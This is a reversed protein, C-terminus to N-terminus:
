ESVEFVTCGLGVNPNDKKSISKVQLGKAKLEKALGKYFRRADLARGKENFIPMRAQSVVIEESGADDTSYASRVCNKDLWDEVLDIYDDLDVGNSKIIVSSERGLEFMKQFYQMLLNNFPDIKDLVAEQLLEVTTAGIAPASQGSAAAILKGSYNDVGQLEFYLLTRPGQRKARYTLEVRIDVAPEFAEGRHKRLEQELLVTEFGRELMMEGFKTISAKLDLDLLADEYRPVDTPVGMVDVKDLLNMGKLLTNSPIVVIKPKKAAKQAELSNCITLAFLSCLIFLIKKM